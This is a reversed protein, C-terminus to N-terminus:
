MVIKGPLRRGGVGIEPHIVNGSHPRPVGGPLRRGGVGIEPHVVNGGYPRPVGRFDKNMSSKVPPFKIEIDGKRTQSVETPKVMSFDIGFGKGGKEIDSESDYPRDMLDLKSRSMRRSCFRSILCAVIALVAIVSLVVFVPGFSGKSNSPPHTPIVNPYVMPQAFTSM